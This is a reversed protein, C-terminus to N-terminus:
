NMSYCCYGLLLLLAIIVLIALRNAVLIVILMGVATFFAIIGILKRLNM